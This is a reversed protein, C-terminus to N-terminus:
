VVTENKDLSSEYVRNLEPHKSTHQGEEEVGCSTDELENLAAVEAEKEIATKEGVKEDKESLEEFERDGYM